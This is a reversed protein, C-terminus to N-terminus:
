DQRRDVDKIHFQGLISFQRVSVDWLLKTWGASLAVDFCVNWNMRHQSYSVAAEILEVVSSDSQFM